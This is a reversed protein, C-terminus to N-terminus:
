VWACWDKRGPGTEIMSERWDDRTADIVWHKNIGNYHRLLHLMNKNGEDVWLSFNPFVKSGPGHVFRKGNTRRDEEREAKEWEYIGSYIALRKETLEPDYPFEDGYNYEGKEAHVRYGALNPLVNVAEFSAGLGNVFKLLNKMSYEFNVACESKHITRGDDGVGKIYFCHDVCAVNEYGKHRDPSHRGVEMGSIELYMARGDDLKFATRIRCNPVDGRPVCGAGEFYLTKM